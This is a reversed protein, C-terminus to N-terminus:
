LDPFEEHARAAIKTGEFKKLKLKRILREAARRDDKKLLEMAENWLAEGEQELKWAAIEDKLEQDKEARKMAKKVEGEMPSAAWESALHELQAYGEAAKGPVLLTLTEEYVQKMAAEVGPLAQQAEEAFKGVPIIELIESWGRWADGLLKGDTSRRADAVLLKVRSLEDKSLGPGALKQAKGLESTVQSVEPPDATNFRWAQKGDPLLIVTQPCRMAGDDDRFTVYAEEWAQRHQGCHDSWPYVSCVERTVKEGDVEEKIKRLSHDGDNTVVVVAKVSRDILDQNPLIRDRYEDNQPEGELIIHILLPVNQERSAKRAAELTGIFPTLQSRRQKQKGKGRGQESAPEAKTAVAARSRGPAHVAPPALLQVSLCCVAISAALIQTSSLM